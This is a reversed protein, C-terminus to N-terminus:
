FYMSLRTLFPSLLFRDVFTFLLLIIATVRIDKRTVIASNIYHKFILWWLLVSGAMSSFLFCSRLLWAGNGCTLFVGFGNYGRSVGELVLVPCEIWFWSREMAIWYLLLPLTTVAYLAIWSPNYTIAAGLADSYIKHSNKALLIGLVLGVVWVFCLTCFKVIKIHTRVKYYFRYLM